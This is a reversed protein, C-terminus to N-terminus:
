VRFYEDPQKLFEELYLCYWGKYEFVYGEIKDCTFVIRKHNNYKAIILPEKKAFDADNQVQEIWKNIDSSESFFDWITAKDAYAKCEIVFRFWVPCILDSTFALRQEETLVSARYRNNGGVWAGSSVARGFLEEGFRVNLIKATERENNSGKNKSNIKNPM